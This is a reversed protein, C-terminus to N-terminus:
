LNNMRNFFNVVEDTSAHEHSVSELEVEQQGPRVIPTPAPIDKGEDGSNAQIYLWNSVELSDSIRALLYDSESWVAADDLVAALV